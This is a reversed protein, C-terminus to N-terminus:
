QFKRNNLKSYNYIISEDNNILADFYKIYSFNYDYFLNDM